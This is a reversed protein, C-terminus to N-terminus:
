ELGLDLKLPMNDGISRQDQFLMCDFKSIFKRIFNKVFGLQLSNQATDVIDAMEVFITGFISLNQIFPQFLLWNGPGILM